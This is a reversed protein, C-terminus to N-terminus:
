GGHRLTLALRFQPADMAENAARSSLILRLSTRGRILATVGLVESLRRSGSSGSGAIVDCLRRKARAFTQSLAACSRLRMLGASKTGSVSCFPRMAGNPSQIRFVAQRVAAPQYPM